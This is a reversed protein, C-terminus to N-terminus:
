GNVDVATTDRKRASTLRLLQAEILADEAEDSWPRDPFEDPWPNPVSDHAPCTPGPLSYGPNFDTRPRLYVRVSRKCATGKFLECDPNCGFFGYGECAPVAVKVYGATKV